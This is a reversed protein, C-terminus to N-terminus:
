ELLEWKFGRPDLVEQRLRRELSSLTLGSKKAAETVSRYLEMNGNRDYRVIAKSMARSRAASTIDTLAKYSLNELTCESKVGNKPIACLGNKDAYGGCFCRDLLRFVGVRKQKGDLGRLRVEARPGGTDVTLSIWKDRQFQQVDGLENIRYNNLYGTIPKWM